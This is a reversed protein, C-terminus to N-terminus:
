EAAGMKKARKVLREMEERVCTSFDSGLVRCAENWKAQEEKTVRVKMFTKKPMGRDVKPGKAAVYRNHRVNFEPNENRIAKAEALRALRASPFREIEIRSVRGFWKASSSHSNLRVAANMSYGIYLLANDGDYMRYICAVEPM